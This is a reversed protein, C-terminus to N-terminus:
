IRELVTKILNKMAIKYNPSSNGAMRNAIIMCVTMARHGLLKCLGQLAASEMEYNTIKLNGYRFREIKKNLESDVLELRLKRGQPGYFGNASITCGLIMDNRGIKSVLSQDADVIYPKAWLENWEVKKCFDAEFDLDCVNNRGAYFNLVGDFGIGKNAIVYSGIPIDPQLGGSTGIRIINLQRFSDKITRTSFDINALADLENVVIDINDGGIGHSLCMIPKDKYVGGITHFERNTVEYEIKDFFSSIINVRGPDGVVIINDKLQEPCLHLHFISGDDNIIMESEEIINKGM